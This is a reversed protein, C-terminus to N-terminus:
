KYIQVEPKRINWKLSSLIFKDTLVQSQDRGYFINSLPLEHDLSLAQNLRIAGAEGFSEIDQALITKINKQINKYTNSTSKRSLSYLCYAQSYRIRM